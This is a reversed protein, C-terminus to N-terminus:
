RDLIRDSAGWFKIQFHPSWAGLIRSNNECRNEHTCIHDISQISLIERISDFRPCIYSHRKTAFSLTRVRHAVRGRRPSQGYLQAVLGGCWAREALCSGVLGGARALQSYLTLNNREYAGSQAESEFLLGGFTCAM